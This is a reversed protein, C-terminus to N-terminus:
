LADFDVVEGGARTSIARLTEPSISAKIFKVPGFATLAMFGGPRHGGLKALMEGEDFPIETGPQTWTCSKKTEVVALTTASGDPIAAPTVGEKVEPDFFAGKGIVGRFFTEKSDDDAAPHAFVKPMREILEKNHLSDWAEDLHFENYLDKEGLFPLLAVRWSLLPKGDKSLIAPGPYHGNKEQYEGLAIGIKILNAEVDGKNSSENLGQFIPLAAAIALPALGTPNWAPFPERSTFRFGQADSSLSYTAPFLLPRIEEPTPIEEPDLRLRFPFLKSSAADEEKKKPEPDDEDAGAPKTPAVEVSVRANRPLVPRLVVSLPAHVFQPAMAPPAVVAPALPATALVPAVAPPVDAPAVPAPVPAAPAVAPTAPAPFPALAVAPPVNVPLAAPPVGAPEAAAPGVRVFDVSDRPRTSAPIVEEVRVTSGIPIGATRANMPITLTEAQFMFGWWQILSPVNALIEPLASNRTDTVSVLAMDSPLSALARTMPGDLEGDSRLAQRAVDPTTGFSAFHEGIVISPRYGAPLPWYTPSLAIEYGGEVNKLKRVLKPAPKDGKAKPDKPIPFQDNVWKALADVDEILRARDKIEVLVSVRPVRAMGRVMSDFPNTSVLVRTPVDAVLVRPGFKALIDERLRRGTAKRFAEVGMTVMLTGKGEDVQRALGAVQDFLKVLDISTSTFSGVGSPLPPLSKADFTPQDFLALVGKRPAPAVVRAVSELAEGRYGWRVDVRKIGDLGFMAAEPPMEPLARADFFALGVPEFGNDPALLEKRFPHDVANPQKGDLAAIMAESYKVDMLSIALDDGEIWWAFSTEDDVELVTLKRGGAGTLKKIAEDDVGVKAILKDISRGLPGKGAGRLVLGICSPKAEPDDVKRNIGFAFGSRVLHRVTASLDDVSPLDETPLDDGEEEGEAIATLAAELLQRVVSDLMAGTPTQNLIKWAATKKWAESHADLGDFEVYAVLDKGPFYRALSAPRPEDALALTSSLAILLLSSLTRGVRRM